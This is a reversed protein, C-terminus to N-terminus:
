HRVDFNLYLPFQMKCPQGKCVAPKFKTLVLVSAAFETMETSPSGLAQVSLVSGDPGVDAVLRLEGRVLLKSQGKSIAHLLPKLGDAPFPPEDRKNM